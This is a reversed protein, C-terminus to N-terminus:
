AGNRAAAHQDPPRGNSSRRFLGAWSTIRAASTEHKCFAFAAHRNSSFGDRNLPRRVWFSLLFAASGGALFPTTTDAFPFAVVPQAKSAVDSPNQDAVTATACGPMGPLKLPTLDVWGIM